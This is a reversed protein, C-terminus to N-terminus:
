NKNFSIKVPRPWRKAKNYVGIREVSVIDRQDINLNMESFCELMINCLNENENERVRDVIVTKATDGFMYLYQQNNDSNDISSSVTGESMSSISNTKSYMSGSSSCKSCSNTESGCSYQSSVRDLEANKKHLTDVVKKMADIDMKLRGTEIDIEISFNKLNDLLKSHNENSNMVNQEVNQKLTELDQALGQEVTGIQDSLALNVDDIYRKQHLLDKSIDDQKSDLDSIRYSLREQSTILKETRIENDVLRARTDAVEECINRKLEDIKIDLSNIMDGKLTEQNKSVTCIDGRIGLIASMLDSKDVM